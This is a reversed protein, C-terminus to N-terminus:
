KDCYSVTYKRLFRYNNSISKIVSTRHISKGLQNSFYITAEMPNRFYICEKGSVFKCYHTNRNKSTDRNIDREAYRKYSPLKQYHKEIFNVRIKADNCQSIISVKFNSWGFKKVDNYLETRNKCGSYISNSHSGMHGILREKLTRSTQGVYKDGNVLCEIEYVIGQLILDKENHIIELKKM